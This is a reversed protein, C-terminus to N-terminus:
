AEFAVLKPKKDKENEDHKFNQYVEKPIDVMITYDDASIVHEKTEVKDYRIYTLILNLYSYYTWVVFFALACILCGLNWKIELTETSQMCKVQLFLM